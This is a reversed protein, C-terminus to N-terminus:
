ILRCKQCNVTFFLRKLFWMSDGEIYYYDRRVDYPRYTHSIYVFGTCSCLICQCLFTLFYRFVLQPRNNNNNTSNSNNNYTTKLKPSPTLSQVLYGCNHQEETRCDFVHGIINCSFYLRFDDSKEKSFKSLRRVDETSKPFRRFDQSIISFPQFTAQFKKIYHIFLM